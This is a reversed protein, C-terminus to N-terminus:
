GVLIAPMQTIAPYESLILTPGPTAGSAKRGCRAPATMGYSMLLSPSSARLTPGTGGVVSLALYFSEEEGLSLTPYEEGDFAGLFPTIVGAGGQFYAKTDDSTLVKNGAANFTTIILSTMGAGPTSLELCVNGITGGEARARLKVLTTTGAPLQLTSSALMPDLTWAKIFSAQDKPNWGPYIRDVYDKRPVAISPIAVTPAYNKM